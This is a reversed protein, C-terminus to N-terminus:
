AATRLDVKASISLLNLILLTKKADEETEVQIVEKVNGSLVGEKERYMIEPIKIANNETFSIISDISDVILGYKTNETEFILLKPDVAASNDDMDYLARVDIVAVLDDRLNIMGRLYKPMNPPHIMEKPYSRVEKVETIEVAYNNEITFTIYTKKSAVAGKVLEIDESKEKYLNGHGRTISAIESNSLIKEHNLLITEISEDSSICGEFMEKKRDGLVPFSILDEKFYSVINNISKVLLGFLEDGLKMVVVKNNDQPSNNIDTTKGYGLLNSFDVIPVTNGRIDVAGLCMEGSLITNGVEEVNIIEQIAGIDIACHSKGVLFSICQKRKGLDNKRRNIHATDESQPMQKLNLIEHPDLIQIIRKGQDLKFVGQVVSERSKDSRNNFQSREKENGNFVEGTEDFIIGVCFQGHEIIAVKREKKVEGKDDALNFIKGLDVIPIIMGRLNFLGLLYDPTLPMPSYDKPENIVEQISKVSLAFEVGALLFTGYVDREIKNVKKLENEM